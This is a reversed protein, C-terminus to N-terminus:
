VSYITPLTLHTYSVPTSSPDTDNDVTPCLNLHNSHLEYVHPYNASKRELYYNDFYKETFSTDGRCLPMKKYPNTASTLFHVKRDNNKYFVGAFTEDIPPHESLTKILLHQDHLSQLEPLKYGLKECQLRAERFTGYFSLRIFKNSTPETLNLM